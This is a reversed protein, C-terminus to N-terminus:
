NIANLQQDKGGGNYVMSSLMQIEKDTNLLLFTCLPSYM